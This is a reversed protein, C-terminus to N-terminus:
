NPDALKVIDLDVVCLLQYPNGAISYGQDIVKEPRQTTQAVASLLFVAKAGRDQINAAHV